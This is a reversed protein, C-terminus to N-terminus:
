PYSRRQPDASLYRGQFVQRGMILITRSAAMDVCGPPKVLLLGGAFEVKGTTVVDFGSSGPSRWADIGEVVQFMKGASAVAFPELFVGAAVETRKDSVGSPPFHNGILIAEDGNVRLYLVFPANGDQFEVPLPSFRFETLGGVHM